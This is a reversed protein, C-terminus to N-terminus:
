GLLGLGVGVVCLRRAGQLERVPDEVLGNNNAFRGWRRQWPDLQQEPPATMRKLAEEARLVGLLREEDLVSKCMYMDNALSGRTSRGGFAGGLSDSAGRSSSGALALGGSGSGSSGLAADNERRLHESFRECGARYRAALARQRRQLLASREALFASLSPGDRVHQQQVDAMQASLDALSAYLPELRQAGGLKSLVDQGGLVPPMLERALQLRAGQAVARNQQLVAEAALVDRGAARWLQGLARGFAPGSAANVLGGRGAAGAAVAAAASAAAGPGSGGSRDAIAQLWAAAEDVAGAAAAADAAPAGPKAALLVPAAAGRLAAAALACARRQAAAQKRRAQREQRQRKQEAAAAVAAAADARAQQTEQQQAAPQQAAQQAALAAREADAADRAQQLLQLREPERAARQGALWSELQQQAAALLDRAQLQLLEQDLAALKNKLADAPGSTRQLQAELEVLRDELEGLARSLEARSPEAPQPPPPQEPAAADGAPQSADQQRVDEGGGADAAHEGDGAPAAAAAAAAPLQALRQVLGGGFVRRRKPAPGDDAAEAGAAAAAAAAAAGAPSGGAAALVAGAGGPALLSFAGGPLPQQQMWGPLPLQAPRPSPTREQQQQQHHHHHHQQQLQQTPHRSSGPSTHGSSDLLGLLESSGTRHAVGNPASPPLPFSLQQPRRRQQVVTGAGSVPTHGPMHGPTQQQGSGMTGPPSHLQQAAAATAALGIEVPDDWSMPSGVDPPGVDAAPLTAQGQPRQGSGPPLVPGGASSPTHQGLTCLAGGGSPSHVSVAPPQRDHADAAPQELVVVGEDSTDQLGAGGDAAAVGADAGENHARSSRPKSSSREHRSSSRGRSPDKDRKSSSSSRARSGGAGAAADRSSPREKSSRRRAPSRARERGRLQERASLPLPQEWDRSSSSGRGGGALQRARARDREREAAPWAAGGEPPGPLQQQHQQQGRGSSSGSAARALVPERERSSMDFANGGGGGAPAGGRRAGLGDRSMDFPNAGAHAGGKRPLSGAGKSGRSPLSDYRRDGGGGDNLSGHPAPGPLEGRLSGSSRSM